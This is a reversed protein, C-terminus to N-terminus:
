RVRIPHDGLTLDSSVELEYEGLEWFGSQSVVAFAVDGSALVAFCVRASTPFRVELCWMVEEKLIKFLLEFLFSRHLM